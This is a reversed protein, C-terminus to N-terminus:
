LMDRTVVYNAACRPCQLNISESGEFLDDLRERWGGLIPLIRELTCGCHFRFRRTELVKTEETELIAAVAAEDLGALWELDCDPQAAVLAFNEDELRFARAPRQESQDYFQSVWSVPDRGDVELTSQRPEAGDVTTTQSYFFNRDPERVDETFIRGTISEQISGGTVFLNIRPARLNATWAITDAWPRAVLHLTLMALADKLMQDLDAPYRIGQQMLHLYYDTYIPTFQGRVLLANKHRVFVSEVKTFEEQIEM